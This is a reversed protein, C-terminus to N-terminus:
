TGEQVAEKSSQSITISRLVCFIPSHDSSNDPSHIVGAEDIESNLGESVFFHDLLSVFSVGEREYVYSFDADFTKIIM